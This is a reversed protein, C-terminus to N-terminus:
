LEATFPDSEPEGGFLQQLMALGRDRREESM